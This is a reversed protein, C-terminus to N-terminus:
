LFLLIISAQGINMEEAEVLRGDNENKNIELQQESQEDSLLRGNENNPTSNERLKAANDKHEKRPLNTANEESKQQELFHEEMLSHGLPSGSLNALITNLEDNSPVDMGGDNSSGKFLQFILFILFHGSPM